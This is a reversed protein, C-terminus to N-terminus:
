AVAACASAAGIARARAALKERTGSPVQRHAKARPYPLETVQKGNPYIAEHEAWNDFSLRDVNDVFTEAPTNEALVLSHNEVEVHYYVFTTPVNTERVISTGNILAGAQILAGEVLLAHDPSVLLDRSPVNKALAGTRIRIPLVRTKDAFKMSVTQVGLWDVPVEDGQHTLVLDGRKLTEVPVDGSPTQILTGAMFCITDSYNTVIAHGNNGGIKGTYESDTLFYYQNTATNEVIIGDIRHGHDRIDAQAIFEFSPGASIGNNYTGQIPDKFSLESGNPDTVTINGAVPDVLKTSPNADQLTYNGSANKQLEYAFNFNESTPTTVM